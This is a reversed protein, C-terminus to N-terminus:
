TREWCVGLDRHQLDEVADLAGPALTRELVHGRHEGGVDGEHKGPEAHPEGTAGLQELAVALERGRRADAGVALVPPAHHAPRMGRQGLDGEVHGVGAAPWAQRACPTSSHASSRRASPHIAKQRVICSSVSSGAPALPQASRARVVGPGPGETGSLAVPEAARRLRPVLRRPQAGHRGPVPGPAHGDSVVLLRLLPERYKQRWSQAYGLFFQQEGTLGEVVPAPKGGLSAIWADHAASLGALDAINESLTQKGNVHLDPFPAYADFQAALQAGSAEFHALDEKTWWNEVKGTSDFLAGQDDFSHSIEHGITAGIAGYNIAAPRAPDFYPPQLIGAPFSLANRMPLNVANVIHTNM